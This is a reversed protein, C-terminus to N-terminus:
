IIFLQYCVFAAMSISVLIAFFKKTNEHKLCLTLVFNVSILLLLIGNALDLTKNLYGYINYVISALLIIILFFGFITDYLFSGTSPTENTKTKERYKEKKIEIKEQEKKLADEKKQKLEFAKDEIRALRKEEKQKKKEEKRKLKDLKKKEKKESKKLEEKFLDVVNNEMNDM